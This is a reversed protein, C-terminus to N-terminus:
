TREFAKPVLNFPLVAIIIVYMLIIAKYARIGRHGNEKFLFYKKKYMINGVVIAFLSLVIIGAIYDFGIQKVLQQPEVNLKTKLMQSVIYVGVLLLAEFVLHILIFLGLLNLLHPPNEQRLLVKEEYIRIMYNQAIGLSIWQFLVRLAKVIYGILLENMIVGKNPSTDGKNKLIGLHYRKSDDKDTESTPQHKVKKFTKKSTKVPGDSTTSEKEPTDKTPSDSAPSDKGPDDSITAEKTSTDKGSGDSTTTEKASADYSEDEITVGESIPPASRLDKKVHNSSTKNM